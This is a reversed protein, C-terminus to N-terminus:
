GGCNNCYGNFGGLFPAKGGAGGGGGKRKGDKSGDKGGNNGNKGGDKGGGKWTGKEPQHGWMGAGKGKGKGRLFSVVAQIDISSLADIEMNDSGGGVKSPQKVQQLTVKRM